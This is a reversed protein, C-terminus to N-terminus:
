AVIPWATSPDVDSTPLPSLVAKRSAHAPDSLVEVPLVYKGAQPGADVLRPNLACGSATAGRVATAQAATLIIMQTM